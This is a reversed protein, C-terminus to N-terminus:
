AHPSWTGGPSPVRHHLLVASPTSLHVPGRSAEKWPKQCPLQHFDPNPQRCPRRVQSPDWLSRSHDRGATWAALPQTTNKTIAPRRGGCMGPSGGQRRGPFHTSAPPQRWLGSRPPQALALHTCLATAGGGGGSHQRGKRRGTGCLGRPSSKSVADATRVLARARVARWTDGLAGPSGAGWAAPM